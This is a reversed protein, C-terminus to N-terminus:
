LGNAGLFDVFGHLLVCAWLNRGGVLWILGLVLGAATTTLVGGIGQYIHFAGFIAAQLVVAVFM